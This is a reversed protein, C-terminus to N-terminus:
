QMLVHCAGTFGPAPKFRGPENAVGNAGLFPTSSCVGLWKCWFLPLESEKVMLLAWFM